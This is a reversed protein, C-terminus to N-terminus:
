SPPLWPPEVPAVAASGNAPRLDKAKEEEDEEDEDEDEDEEEDEEDEEKEENVALAGKWHSMAREFKAVFAVGRASAAWDSSRETPYPPPPM